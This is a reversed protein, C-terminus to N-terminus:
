MKTFSEWTDSAKQKLDVSEGKYEKYRVYIYACGMLITFFILFVFIFAFFDFVVSDQVEKKILNELTLGEWEKTVKFIYNTHYAPRFIVEVTATEKGLSICNFDLTFEEYQNPELDHQRAGAGRLVPYVVNEAKNLTRVLPPRMTISNGFMEMNKVRFKLSDKHKHVVVNEIGTSDFVKEPNISRGGDTTLITKSFWGVESVEIPAFAYDNGCKKRMGIISNRCVNGDLTFTLKINTVGTLGEACDFALRQTFNENNPGSVIHDEISLLRSDVVKISTEITNALHIGHIYLIATKDEETYEVDKEDKIHRNERYEKSPKGDKMIDSTGEETGIKLKDRDTIYDDKAFVSVLLVVCLM